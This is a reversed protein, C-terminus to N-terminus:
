EVSVSGEMGQQRHNGVSCYMTFSGNKDAVFEVSDIQGAGITKTAVSLEDVTLNHPFKGDNQFVLKVKEGQKVTITKPSFAFESGSVKIERAEEMMQASDTGQSSPTPPTTKTTPAQSKQSQLLFWGGVIVLLGVVITITMNRSM